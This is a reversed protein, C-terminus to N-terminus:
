KQNLAERAIARACDLTPAYERRNLIKELAERYRNRESIVAEVLTKSVSCWPCTDPEEFPIGM